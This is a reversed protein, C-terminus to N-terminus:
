AARRLLSSRPPELTVLAPRMASLVEFPGIADLEDFGDYIPIETQM